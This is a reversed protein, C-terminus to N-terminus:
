RNEIANGKFPSAKSYVYRYKGSAERAIQKVHEITVQTRIGLLEKIKDLILEDHSERYGDKRVVRVSVDGNEEQIVQFQGPIHNKNFVEVFLYGPKPNGDQDALIDRDRGFLRSMVPLGSGCPCTEETYAGVDGIKYRILPFGFNFLDTVVLQALEGHNAKQGDYNIFEFYVGDYFMHMGKHERCECAAVGVEFTGYKEFIPCQFVEAFLSKQYDHLTEGTCSVARPKIDDVGKEKLFRAFIYLSNPFCKIIEPKFMKLRILFEEMYEKDTRYPNFALIREGTMNRILSKIGKPGSPHHRAAVFYAVRDGIEYGMWRDFFLEQARRRIFCEKDRYFVLPTGTSGGTSDKTLNNLPFNDAIMENTNQRIMEKTLIPLMTLVEVPTSLDYLEIGATKFISNYYASHQWAHKLIAELNNLQRERLQDYGIADYDRYQRLYRFLQFKGDKAMWMPYTIYKVMHNYLPM